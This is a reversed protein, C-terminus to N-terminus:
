NSIAIINQVNIYITIAVAIAVFVFGAIKCSTNRIGFPVVLATLSQIIALISYVYGLSPSEDRTTQFMYSLVFYVIAFFIQSGCYGLLIVSNFDQEKEKLSSGCVSCFFANDDNENSCKSCRM